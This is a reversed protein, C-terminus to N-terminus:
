DKNTRGPEDARMAERLTREQLEIEERQLQLAKLRLADAERKKARAEAEKDVQDVKANGKEAAKEARIKLLLAEEEFTLTIVGDEDVLSSPQGKDTFSPPPSHEHITETMTENEAQLERIEWLRRWINRGSEKPLKFLSRSGPLHSQSIGKVTAEGNVGQGGKFSGNAM